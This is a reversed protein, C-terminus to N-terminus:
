TTGSAPWASTSCRGTSGAGGPERRRGTYDPFVSQAPNKKANAPWVPGEFVGGKGNRVFHNGALGTDYPVTGPQVKIHPDVITVLRLGQGRLDRVLRGPDPFREPDWTFPAYGDMYHIDLWVADAPIKRRRLGSAIERVKAEPFYSYRCQHYGLSWLPPLPMRGTLASYREIVQKPGPGAIIYYDLGGGETGFSLLGESERGVDFTTRYTNDLFIGHARGKRMALYFPVSVYIPDTDREYAYTDTNWMAFSSGGRNMGRKDLRGNKEGFGYVHQDDPLRKWVRVGQGAVAMGREADDEDIVDGAANAVAVRLPNHRVTVTLDETTLTSRDGQTTMGLSAPPGQPVVAYSFDRGLSRGAAFRLRVVGRAM